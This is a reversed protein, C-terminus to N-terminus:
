WNQRLSGVPAWTDVMTGPALMRGSTGYSPMMIVNKGLYTAYRAIAHPVVRVGKKKSYDSKLKM